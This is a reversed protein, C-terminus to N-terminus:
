VNRIWCLRIKLFGWFYVPESLEVTGLGNPRSFGQSFFVNCLCGGSGLVLEEAWARDGPKIHLSLFEQWFPLHWSAPHDTWNSIAAARNHYCSALFFHETGCRPLPILWWFENELMRTFSSCSRLCRSFKLM